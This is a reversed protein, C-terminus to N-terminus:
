PIMPGALAHRRLDLALEISEDLELSEGGLSGTTTRLRDALFIALSQYFRSAFQFGPVAFDVLTSHRRSLRTYIVGQGNGSGGNALLGKSTAPASLVRTVSTRTAQCAPCIFCKM